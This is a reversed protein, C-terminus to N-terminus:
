EHSITILQKINRIAKEINEETACVSIRVYREGNSGFIKGPTLFVHAEYLIRDLFTEVEVIEDPVRGWVFMGTAQKSYHCGLVDLLQYVLERRRRYVANREQLWLVPNALAAIAAHQV